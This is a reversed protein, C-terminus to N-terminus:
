PLSCPPLVTLFPLSLHSVPRYWFCPCCDGRFIPPIPENCCTPCFLKRYPLFARLSRIPVDPFQLVPHIDIRFSISPNTSAETVSIERCKQHKYIAVPWSASLHLNVSYIPVFFRDLSSVFGASILLSDFLASRELRRWIERGFIHRGVLLSFPPRQLLLLLFINLMSTLFSIPMVQKELVYPANTLNNTHIM